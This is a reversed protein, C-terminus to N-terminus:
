GAAAAAAAHRAAIYGFVLAPGLTIGPGPYAGNMASQMDNGCAYLGAIPQGDAALVRAHEDTVIGAAMGLDAPQVAVAYFPPAEIAGVCPNPQHEADGLHRQYIDGGRGFRTDLGRRADHNWAAVTADFEQAPLGLGHALDVLTEARRLYGSALHRGLRRTFPRVAGLGYRWLFRRDCVLWAPVAQAGRRLQARVFEHYSLAENVFRKGRQDVAILGPKSRDTV